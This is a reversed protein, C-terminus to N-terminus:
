KQALSDSESETLNEFHIEMDSLNQSHPISVSNAYEMIKNAEELELSSDIRLTM